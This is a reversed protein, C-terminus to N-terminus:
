EPEGELGYLTRITRIDRQSPTRRVAIPYMCDGEYDSHGWLGLAHGLEHLAVTELNASAPMPGQADIRIYVEPRYRNGPRLTAAGATPLDAVFRVLLDDGGGPPAPVFRIRGPLAQEWSRMARLLPEELRELAETPYNVPLVISYRIETREFRMPRGGVLVAPLYDPTGPHHLAARFALYTSPIAFVTGFFVLILLATTRILRKGWRSRGEFADEDIGQAAVLHPDEEEAEGSWEEDDDPGELVSLDWRSLDWRDGDNTERRPNM